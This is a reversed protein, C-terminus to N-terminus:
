LLSSDTTEHKSSRSPAILHERKSIRSHLAVPIAEPLSGPWPARSPSLPGGGALRVRCTAEAQSRGQQPPATHEARPRRHRRTSISRQSRIQLQAALTVAALVSCCHPLQFCGPRDIIRTKTILSLLKHILLKMQSLSCLNTWPHFSNSQSRITNQLHHAFSPSLTAFM